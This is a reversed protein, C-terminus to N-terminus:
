QKKTLEMEPEQTQEQQQTPVKAMIHETLRTHLTEFQDIEQLEPQTAKKTKLDKLLMASENSREAFEALQRQELDLVEQEAKGLRMIQKESVKQQIIDNLAKVGGFLTGLASVGAFIVAPLFLAAVASAVVGAVVGVSAFAVIYKINNKTQEQRRFIETKLFVVQNRIRNKKNQINKFSYEYGSLLSQLYHLRNIKQQKTENNAM